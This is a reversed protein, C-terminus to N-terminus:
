YMGQDISFSHSHIESEIEMSFLARPNAETTSLAKDQPLDVGTVQTVHNPRTSCDQRSEQFGRSRFCVTLVAALDLWRAIEGGLAKTRFNREAGGSILERM